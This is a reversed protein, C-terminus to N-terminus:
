NNNYDNDFDNNYDGARAVRKVLQRGIKKAVTDTEFEVEVSALDGQTQWKATLLFTDCHYVMGFKDTIVVYDSMRIFRMADLLYEPALIVFKYTKESIQKIPFVYGDRKEVEEEFQYEPKGIEACFYLRNRYGNEYVITGADMEFNEEDWWEIKLLNETNLKVCFVESYFTGYNTDIQMYYCGVEMPFPLPLYGRYVVADVNDSVNEVVDLGSQKVEETFIYVPEEDGTADNIGVYKVKTPESGKRDVLLQFPIIFNAPMVLPYIAGYAYSKRHNQLRLDDYFPLPSFNNNQKM